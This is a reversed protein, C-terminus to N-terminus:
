ILLPNTPKLRLKEDTLMLNLNLKLNEWNEQYLERLKKNM